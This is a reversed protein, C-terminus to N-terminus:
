DGSYLTDERTFTWTRTIEIIDTDQRVEEPFAAYPAALEVIRQAADDLVPYGSSRNLEIKEISGDARISVTLQLRGYLKQEKAASPYNLNGVKEVKQRWAEVYSAFRYERTRAGIFKRKPRKQYADMNKSLQAELRAADLSRAVLDATNILTPKEQHKGQEPEVAEALQTPESEVKQPSQPKVMVEQAPKEQEAIRQPKRPAESQKAAAKVKAQKTEAALKTASEDPPTKPVPLPSKMQRDADTNGGRDLNSQALADAKIPAQKTKANVLVVELAQAKDQLKKEQPKIFGLGAILVTHAVVSFVLAAGLTSKVWDVIGNM